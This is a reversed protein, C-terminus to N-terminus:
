GLKLRYRGGAESVLHRPRMPDSEMKQRLHRVHARLYQVPPRAGAVWAARLLQDETMAARSGALADLLRYELPTIHVERGEVILCRREADIRLRSPPADGPVRTRKLRAAQKLWVRVRALLDAAAFPKILYDNAGADLVAAREEEREDARARAVIPAATVVRTGAGDGLVADVDPHGVDVVVVDPEHGVVPGRRAVGARRRELGM